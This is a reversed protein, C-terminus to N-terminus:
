VTRGYFAALQDALCAGPAVDVIQGFPAAGEPGRLAETVSVRVRRLLDGALEEDLDAEQGTARALDWGHVYQDATIMGLMFGGTVEGFPMAIPKELADRSGFAREAIQVSLDYSDLLDQPSQAEEATVYEGNLQAAIGRPVAVFHDILARVDWAACPTAAGFQDARVRALIERTGAAARSLSEVTLAKEVAVELNM